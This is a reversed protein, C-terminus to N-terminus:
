SHATDDPSSVALTLLHHVPHGCGVVERGHASERLRAGFKGACAQRPPEGLEHQGVAGAGEHAAVELHDVGGRPRGRELAAVHVRGVGDGDHRRTQRVEDDPVLRPPLPASSKSSSRLCFSSARM